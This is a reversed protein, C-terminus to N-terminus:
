RMAILPVALLAAFMGVVRWRTFQEKLFVRALLVTIAPYLSSIVVAADLRGTQAARIYMVSGSIDLIGAVVGIGVGQRTIQYNGVVLVILSTVVFSAARSLASLWVPSNDGAQKTFLYYGAFCLGAFVASGIGEPRSGDEARSILWIGCAAFVFGVVQLTRPVGETFMGFVTPIAASLVAAVPAVLGMRGSALARYFIALGAGGSFGAALTWAIGASSPFPSHSAVAVGLMFLLGSAHVVTTFLFANSRRAAYGGLFDSTGWVFVAGLSFSAPLFQSSPTM